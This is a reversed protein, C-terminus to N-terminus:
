FHFTASSQLLFNNTPKSDTSTKWADGPLAAAAALGLDAERGVKYVYSLDLEMGLSKGYFGAPRGDESDPKADYHDKVPGPISENMQATIFKVEFSGSQTSEYRYGTAALTANEMRGPNFAGDVILNDAEPRGNFLLLAPKFNRHFAMAKVKSNREAFGVSANGLDDNYYGDADGPAYAYNLFLVHRSVTGENYETPGLPAGAHSVTWDIGGAFGISDLKNTAAESDSYVQGGLDIWNPDKSKGMRFLIENRLALDGIFFGTYLDLFKLDTESGGTEKGCDKAAGNNNPDPCTTDSTGYARSSIQAFYVGVQKTFPSGANAKRDDYSISFFFQDIDDATDNAGYRRTSTGPQGNGDIPAGTEALKDYGVTFGLTNTKQINIDCSVGDYVSADTSFPKDGSDMFIGLGWDRGRRGAEVICYDFAYRIYAKTVKPTYPRYGPEGTNQHEGQCPRNPDETDPRQGTRSADCERPEATDGLYSERPNDFLRFELFMSSQDNFRAEGRLRFTQEIAQYTGSQRQFGPAIQTEGKLGYNGEGDVFFGFAQSSSLVLLPISAHWLKM